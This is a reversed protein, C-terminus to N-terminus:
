LRRIAIGVGLDSGPLNKMVLDANVEAALAASLVRGRPMALAM